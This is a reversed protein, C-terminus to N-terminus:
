EKSCRELGDLGLVVIKEHQMTFKRTYVKNLSEEFKEVCEFNVSESVGNSYIDSPDKIDIAPIM